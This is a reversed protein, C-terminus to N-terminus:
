HGSNAVIDNLGVNLYTDPIPGIIVSEALLLDTSVNFKQEIFPATILIESEIELWIRHRTQNIGAAEFQDKIMLNPSGLGSFPLDIKPGFGALLQSGTLVGLPLSIQLNNLQNLDEEIAIIVDSVLANLRMTNPIMVAVKGENDKEMSILNQYNQYDPNADLIALVAKEMTSIALSHAKLQAAEELIPSIKIEFMILTLILSLAFLILRGKRSLGAKKPNGWKKRRM